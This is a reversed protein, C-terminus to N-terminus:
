SDAILDACGKLLTLCFSSVRGTYASQRSDFADPSETPSLGANAVISMASQSYPALTVFLLCGSAAVGVRKMEIEAIIM